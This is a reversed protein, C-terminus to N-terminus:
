FDAQCVNALNTYRKEKAVREAFQLKDPEQTEKMIDYEYYIFHGPTKTRTM